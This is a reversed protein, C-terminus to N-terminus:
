FFIKIISNPANEPSFRRYDHLDKIEDQSDQNLCNAGVSCKLNGIKM